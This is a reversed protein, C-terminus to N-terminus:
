ISKWECMNGFFVFLTILVVNDFLGACKTKLFVYQKRKRLPEKPIEDDKGYSYPYDVRM